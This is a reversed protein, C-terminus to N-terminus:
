GDVACWQANVVLVCGIMVLQCLVPFCCSGSLNTRAAESSCPQRIPVACCVVSWGVQTLCLDVATRMWWQCVGECSLDQLVAAHWCLWRQMVVGAPCSCALVAVQAPCMRCPMQMGACAGTCFLDQLVAAHWYLWRVEVYVPSSVFARVGKTVLLRSTLLAWVVGCLWVTCWGCCHGVLLGLM